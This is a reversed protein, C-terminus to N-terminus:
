LTLRSRSSCSSLSSRHHSLVGQQHPVIGEESGRCLFSNLRSLLDVMPTSNAVLHTRPRTIILRRAKDHQDGGCGEGKWGVGGERGM